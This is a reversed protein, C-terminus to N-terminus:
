REKEERLKPTDALKGLAHRMMRIASLAHRPRRGLINENALIRELRTIGSRLLRVSRELQGLRNGARWGFKDVLAKLKPEANMREIQFLSRM